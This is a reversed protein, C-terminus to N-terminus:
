DDSWFWMHLSLEEGPTWELQGWRQEGLQGCGGGQRISLVLSNLTRKVHGVFALEKRGGKGRERLPEGVMQFGSTSVKSDDKIRKEGEGGM